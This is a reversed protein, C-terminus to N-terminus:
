KNLVKLNENELWIIKITKLNGEKVKFDSYGKM